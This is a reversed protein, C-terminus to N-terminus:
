LMVQFHAAFGSPNYSLRTKSRGMCREILDSGFGRRDPPNVLPGGSEVWDLQLMSGKPQQSIRWEIQVVGSPRSLAGYKSANTALEHLALTLSLAWQPPIKVEPGSLRYNEGRYDRYPALEAKLLDGLDAGSWDDLLMLDVTRGIAGLRELLLNECTEVSESARATLSVVSNVVTMLNKLRHSIEHTVLRRAEEIQKRESIDRLVVTLIIRGALDHRTLGAEIPFEEGSKKLGIVDRGGGMSRSLRSISSSFKQIHVQHSSHFRAPLLIDISKGLVEGAKYGFTEEASKNFLIISGREDTAIVGDAVLSLLEDAVPGLPTEEADEM